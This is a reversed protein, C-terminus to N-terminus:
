VAIEVAHAAPHAVQNGCTAAIGLGNGFSHGADHRKGVSELIRSRYTTSVACVAARVQLTGFEGHEKASTMALVKGHENLPKAGHTDLLERLAARACQHTSRVLIM